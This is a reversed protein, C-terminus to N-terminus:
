ALAHRDIELSQLPVRRVPVDRRRANEEIETLRPNKGGAELLVERVHELDHTFDALPLLRTDFTFLAADDRSPTLSDLIASSIAIAAARMGPHVGDLM